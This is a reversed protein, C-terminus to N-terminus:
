CIWVFRRVTKWYSSGDDRVILVRDFQVHRGCHPNVTENSDNNTVAVRNQVSENSDILTVDHNAMYKASAYSDSDIILVAVSLSLVIAGLVFASFRHNVKTM